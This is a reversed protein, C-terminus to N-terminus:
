TAESWYKEEIALTIDRRGANKSLKLSHTERFVNSNLKKQKKEEYIASWKEPKRSVIWKRMHKWFKTFLDDINPKELNSLIIEIFEFLKPELKEDYPNNFDILLDVQELENKIKRRKSKETPQNSIGVAELLIALFWDYSSIYGYNLAVDNTHLKQCLLLVTHMMLGHQEYFDVLKDDFPRTLGELCNEEKLIWYFSSWWGVSLFSKKALEVNNKNIRNVKYPVTISLKDM